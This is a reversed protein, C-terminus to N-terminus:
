SSSCRCSAHLFCWPLVVVRVQLTTLAHANETIDPTTLLDSSPCLSVIEASAALTAVSRKCPTASMVAVSAAGGWCEEATAESTHPESPPRRWELQEGIFTSSSPMSWRWRSGGERSIYIYTYVRGGRTGLIAESVPATHFDPHGDQAGTGLSGVTEKSTFCCEGM